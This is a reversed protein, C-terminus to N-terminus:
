WIPQGQARRSVEEPTEPCSKVLLTERVKQVDGLGVALSEVLKGLRARLDVEHVSSTGRGDPFGDPLGPLRPLLGSPRQPHNEPEPEGTANGPLMTPGQEFDTTIEPPTEKLTINPLSLLMKQLDSWRAKLSKELIAMWERMKEPDVAAQLADSTHGHLRDSPALSDKSHHSKSPLSISRNTRKLVDQPLNIARDTATECSELVLKELKVLKDHIQLNQKQVFKRLDMIDKVTAANSGRISLIVEMFDAFDLEKEEGTSDDNFIFDALDVLGMVDVEVEQLAEVAEELDLIKVFEAKSIVGDGTEDLSSMIKQMKEKVFTVLMTEREITAVASIVECLVGILMNMITFAALVVFAFFIVWCIWSEEAIKDSVSGVSDLLTGDIWLTEMAHPVTKFYMQGFITDASLQKFVIAFVYMVITLLVAVFFVSRMASVMGKILIMLEPMARLLKAMRAMRSLRLL